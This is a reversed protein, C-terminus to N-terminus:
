CFYWFIHFVFSILWSKFSRSIFKIVKLDMTSEQFQKVGEKLGTWFTLYKLRLSIKLIFPYVTIMLCSINESIDCTEWEIVLYYRSYLHLVLRLFVVIFFSGLLFFFHLKLVIQFFIAILCIYIKLFHQKIGNCSSWKDEVMWTKIKKWSGLKTKAKGQRDPTNKYKKSHHNGRIEFCICASLFNIQAKTLKTTSSCSLM